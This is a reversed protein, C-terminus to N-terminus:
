EHCAHGAEQLVRLGPTEDMELAGDLSRGWVQGVFTPDGLAGYSRPHEYHGPIIDIASQRDM